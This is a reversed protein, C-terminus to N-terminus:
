EHSYIFEPKELLTFWLYNLRHKDDEWALGTGLKALWEVWKFRSAFSCTYKHQHHHQGHKTSSPIPAISSVHDGISVVYDLRNHLNNMSRVLDFQGEWEKDDVKILGMRRKWFFCGEFFNQYAWSTINPNRELSLLDGAKCTDDRRFMTTLVHLHEDQLGMGDLSMRWWKKKFQLLTTLGHPTISPVSLTQRTGGVLKLEDLPTATDADPAALALLIPDLWGNADFSDCAIDAPPEIGVLNVQRLSGRKRELISSWERISARSPFIVGMLEMENLSPTDHTGLAAIVAQMSLMSARTGINSITHSTPAENRPPDPVGKLQLFTLTKHSAIALFLRRQGEPGMLRLMETGIIAHTLYGTLSADQPSVAAMTVADLLQTFWGTDNAANDDQNNNSTDGGPFVAGFSSMIDLEGELQLDVFKLVKVQRMRIKAIYAHWRELPTRIDVPPASAVGVGARPFLANQLLNGYGMDEEEEYSSYDSSDTEEDNMEEDGEEEEQGEMPDGLANDEPVEQEM